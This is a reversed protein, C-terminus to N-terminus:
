MSAFAEALGTAARDFPELALGRGLLADLLKRAPSNPGPPTAVWFVHLVDSLEEASEAAAHLAGTGDAVRCLPLLVELDEIFVLPPVEEARALLLQPERPCATFLSACLARVAQRRAEGPRWLFSAPIEARSFCFDVPEGRGNVLFLAGQLEGEGQDVFRLYGVLGLEDVDSHDRFPIPV